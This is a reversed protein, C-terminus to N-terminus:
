GKCIPRCSEFIYHSGLNPYSIIILVRKWQWQDSWTESWFWIQKLIERLISMAHQVLPDPLYCCKVMHTAPMMKVIVIGKGNHNSEINIPSFWLVLSVINSHSHCTLLINVKHLQLVSYKTCLISPATDINEIKNLNDSKLIQSRLTM